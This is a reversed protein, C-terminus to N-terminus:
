ALTAEMEARADAVVDYKSLASLISNRIQHPDARLVDPAAFDISFRWVLLDCLRLDDRGRDWKRPLTHFSFVVVLGVFYVSETMRPQGVWPFHM